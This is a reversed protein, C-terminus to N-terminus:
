ISGEKAPADDALPRVPLQAGVNLAEKAAEQDSWPYEKKGFCMSKEHGKGCIVVIDGGKALYNIAFNIAEGRNTMIKYKENEGNFGTAIENCIENVDETRPDEATIISFDAYKDAAIGMMPRKTKDRLGAAGFVVILKKGKKKQKKLSKLVQELANPTHAFDVIVQFDQGEAIEELRGKVGEFSFIANLVKEKSLGFSVAAGIAALCNSQNYEGLLSTKFKYKDLTIDATNTIGYSLIKTNRDRLIKELYVYSEDDKNLIVTKSKELLKLKALRYNDFTKHYDIHEHTINTLVGIEFDIGLLRFQDLGHSTTELVVCEIRKNAMKRLLKQLLWPDPATVHLGTDIEEEGIKALVTSVMATKYGNQSLIHHILSVTTTKGDTGTVGIVRLKKSPFGFFINAIIALPLHLFYNKLKQIM